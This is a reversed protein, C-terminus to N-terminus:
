AGHGNAEEGQDAETGHRDAEAVHGDKAGHGDAEEGNDAETGHRDAEAVHGNETGHADAEEGQDAETGHGDKAGHGNAEEGQDAETGHGDAEAVHGDAGTKRKWASLASAVKLEFHWADFPVANSGRASRFSVADECPARTTRKRFIIAWQLCVRKWPRCWLM